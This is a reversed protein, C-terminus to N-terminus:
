FLAEILKEGLLKGYENVHANVEQQAPGIVYRPFTGPIIDGPNELLQYFGGDETGYVSQGTVSFSPEAPSTTYLMNGEMRTTIANYLAYRRPYTITKVHSRPSDIWGGPKPGSPASVRGSGSLGWAGGRGYINELTFRRLIGEIEPAIYQLALEPALLQAAANIEEISFDLSDAM